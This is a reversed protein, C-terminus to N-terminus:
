DKKNEPIERRILELLDPPSPGFLAPWDPLTATKNYLLALALGEEQSWWYGDRRVAKLVLAEPFNGGDQHMLWSAMAWQGVGEMTLFARDLAPLDPHQAELYSKHRLSIGELLEELSGPNKDVRTAGALAFIRDVEERFLSVYAPDSDFYAQVLDDSMPHEFGQKEEFRSIMTGFGDMQRTHAFEHLFVGTLLADLGVEESKIGADKWFAPAAMVFFSEIEPNASPGAFTMLQVPVRDGTPLTLTDKHAQKRWAIKRGYLEPGPIEEGNPASTDSNTYVFAADFFLMEPPEAAELRFVVNSVLEWAALWQALWPLEGGATQANELEKQGRGPLSILLALLIIYRM